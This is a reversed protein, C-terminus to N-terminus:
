MWMIGARAPEPVSQQQHLALSTLCPLRAARPTQSAIAGAGRGKRRCPIMTGPKQHAATGVGGSAERSGRGPASHAPGALNAAGDYSSGRDRRTGGVRAGHLHRLTAPGVRRFKRKAPKAKDAKSAIGCRALRGALTTSAAERNPRESKDERGPKDTTGTMIQAATILRRGNSPGARRLIVNKKVGRGEKPADSQCKQILCKGARGRQQYSASSPVRHWPGHVMPWSICLAPCRGDKMLIGSRALPLSRM